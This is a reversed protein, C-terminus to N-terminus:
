RKQGAYIWDEHLILRRKHIFRPWPLGDKQFRTDFHEALLGLMEDFLGEEEFDWPTTITLLGGPRLIRVVEEIVDEPATVLDLFHGCHVWDFCAEGFPTAQADGCIVLTNDVPPKVLTTAVPGSEPVWYRLPIEGAPLFHNATAALYFDLELGIVGQCRVAMRQLMGGQGCGLDLGFQFEINGIAALLHDEPTPTTLPRVFDPIKVQNWFGPYGEGHVQTDPYAAEGGALSGYRSFFWASVEPDDGWEAMARAVHWVHEHLFQDARPHLVPTGALIPYVTEAYPAGLLWPELIELRQAELPCRLLGTNLLDHIEL